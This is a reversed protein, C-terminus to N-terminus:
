TMFSVFVAIATTISVLVGGIAAAVQEGFYRAEEDRKPRNADLAHLKADINAYENVADDFGRVDARREAEDDVVALLQILMGDAAAKRVREGVKERRKKLHYSAIVPQLLTAMWQCLGPCVPANTQEQVSALLKLYALNRTSPDPHGCARIMDDNVRRARAAIFAIAHRDLPTDPRGENKSLRDLVPILQGLDMVPDREFMPSHCHEGPNLEYLAREVGFGLAPNEIVTPLRELIQAARMDESRPKQQSAVWNLALRSAIIESILQRRDRDEMAAALAPGLGDIMVGFGRYRIPAAPDLPILARAVMRDETARGATGGGSVVAQQMAEARPEDNMSRRLWADLQKSRLTPAALSPDQALAMALARTNFFETEQFLFPRSARQPLKPQKPSQRRGALWMDLDQVTWRERPDDTLLGRLPEMLSLPIRAQGVLAAYSGFEIKNALARAPDLDNIPNRGLVLFIITVGLSYLDNALSGNGRGTPDAMATEITEFIAAQDHAPPSSVCEGLIMTRRGGDAYFINNPRIARHTVMRGSFERLTGLLPSMLGDIIDDEHMPPQSESLSPMVRSGVPREIVIVYRYRGGLPWYMLGWDAIKIMGSQNYGRLMELIDTRVPIDPNCVLAYFARPDGRAVAHFAQACPSDLQPQPQNPYIQFRGKLDIATSDGSEEEMADMVRGDTQDM